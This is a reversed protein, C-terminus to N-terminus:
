PSPAPLRGPRRLPFRFLRSPSLQIPPRGPHALALRM